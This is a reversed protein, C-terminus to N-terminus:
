QAEDTNLPVCCWASEGGLRVERVLDVRFRGDLLRRDRSPIETLVRPVVEGATGDLGAAARLLELNALAWGEAAVLDAARDAGPALLHLRGDDDSALEV